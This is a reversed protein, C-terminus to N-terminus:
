DRNFNKNALEKRVRSLGEPTIGLYSAILLQPVRLSLDRYTEIFKLYRKEASASLLYNIRKEMHRINNHLALTNVVTFNEFKKAAIDFFEKQVYVAETNELADIYMESPENFYFSSRDAIIWNEPAFQITHEKGSEDMTYSRLIGKCVFYAKDCIEGEKLLLQGKTINVTHVLHEVEEYQSETACQTDIIYKKFLDTM